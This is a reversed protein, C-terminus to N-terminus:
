RHEAVLQAHVEGGAKRQQGRLLNVGLRDNVLQEPKKGAVGIHAVQAVVAHRDPVFPGIGVAIQTGDVAM